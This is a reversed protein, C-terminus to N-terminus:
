VAHNVSEQLELQLLNSRQGRFDAHLLIFVCVYVSVCLSFYHLYVELFLKQIKRM